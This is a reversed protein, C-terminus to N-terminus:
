GRGCAEVGLATALHTKGTGPNGVLLVNERRDIYGCRMLELVLPRNVSPRAKFDSGELTKITPCRAAELRWDAARRQCDILELECLQLLFALHDANDAACRQAIKECEARM